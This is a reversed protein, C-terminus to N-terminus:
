FIEPIFRRNKVSKVDDYADDKDRDPLKVKEPTHTKYPIQSLLHTICNLRAARKDDSRVIYWPSRETDTADLMADRYLNLTPVFQDRVWKRDQPVGGQVITTRIPAGSPETWPEAALAYGFVWPILTLAAGAVRADRRVVLTVIGCASVLLM